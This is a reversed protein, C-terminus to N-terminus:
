SGDRATAAPLGDFFARLEPPLPSTITVRGTGDPKDLELVHAHLAHRDVDLAARDEDTLTGDSARAFFADDKGYLKDGVVPHGVHCLHVRIQHQRGTDLVCRILSVATADDGRREVVDFHTRAELGTGPRAVRMKVRLTSKHDEELPVDVTFTTRTPHGEALALYIKTVRRTPDPRGTAPDLGAFQRKVHRDAPNNKALLLVGSTERDLRHSLYLREDPRARELIKVVTSQFYRATPHVPIFAPKDVALLDDDEYLVAIETDSHEEDWPARWLLVHDEAKVRRSPRLKQGGRDYGSAEIIAQTRTRSTRKLQSMVFRDLRMGACEPPVRLVTVVADAAVDDPRIPDYDLEYSRLRSM